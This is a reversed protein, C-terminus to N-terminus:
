NAVTVRIGGYAAKQQGRVVFCPFVEVEHGSKEGALSQNRFMPLGIRLTVGDQDRDFCVRHQPPIDRWAGAPGAHRRDDKRTVVISSSGSRALKDFGGQPMSADRRLAVKLGAVNRPEGLGVRGGLGVRATGGGGVEPRIMQLMERGNMQLHGEFAGDGDGPGQANARSAMLSKADHGVQISIRPGDGKQGSFGWPRRIKHPVRANSRRLPVPSIVGSLTKRQPSNSLSRATRSAALQGGFFEGVKAAGQVRHNVAVGVLDKQQVKAGGMAGQGAPQLAQAFGPLGRGSAKNHSRRRARPKRARTGALPPTTPLGRDESSTKSLDHTTPRKAVGMPMRRGMGQRM